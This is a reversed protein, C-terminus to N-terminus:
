ATGSAYPTQVASGFALDACIFYALLCVAAGGAFCNFTTVAPYSYAVVFSDPTVAFFMADAVWSEGFGLLATVAASLNASAPVVARPTVPTRAGPLTHTTGLASLLLAASVASDPHSGAFVIARPVTPSVAVILTRANGSASFLAIASVAASLRAGALSIAGPASVPIADSLPGATRSFVHLFVATVAAGTRPCTHRIATPIIPTNTDPFAFAIRSAGVRRTSVTALYPHAGAGAHPAFAGIAAASTGICVFAPIRAGRTIMHSSIIAFGVTRTRAWVVGDITFRAASHGETSATIRAGRTVM